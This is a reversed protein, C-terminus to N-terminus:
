GVQFVFFPAVMQEKMLEKFSPLPIHFENKGYKIFGNDAQEKTKLGRSKLYTGITESIPFELNRFTKKNHDYRFIISKFM